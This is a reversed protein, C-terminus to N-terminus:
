VSMNCYTNHLCVISIFQLTKKSFESSCISLLCEWYLWTNLLKRQAPTTFIFLAFFSSNHWHSLYTKVCCLLKRRATTHYIHVSCFLKLQVLTVFICRALFRSQHAHYTCVCCLPKFQPLTFIHVSCLLELQPLTILICLAFVSLTFLADYFTAEETGTGASRAM